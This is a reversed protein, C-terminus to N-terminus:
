QQRINNIKFTLNRLYDYLIREYKQPCKQSNSFEARTTCVNSLAFYLILRIKLKIECSKERLTRVM